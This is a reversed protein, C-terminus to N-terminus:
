DLLIDLSKYTCNLCNLNNILLNWFLGTCPPLGAQGVGVVLRVAASSVHSLGPVGPGPTCYGSRSWGSWGPTALPGYSGYPDVGSARQAGACCRKCSGFQLVGPWVRLPTSMRNLTIAYQHLVTLNSSMLNADRQLQLAAHLTDRRNKVKLWEAPLPNLLRASEPAGVWEIFQPHHLHVSFPSDVSSQDEDRYSTM